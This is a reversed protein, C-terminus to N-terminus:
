AQIEGEAYFWCGNERIFRSTETMRFARGGERYRATFRVTAHHDDQEEFSHVALGLWKVAHPTGPAELELSVPRTSPHWSTRVYDSRGMAYATYRSRMLHHADPAM